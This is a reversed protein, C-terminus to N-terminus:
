NNTNTTVVNAKKAKYVVSTKTLKLNNSSLYHKNHKLMYLIHQKVVSQTYKIKNSHKVALVALTNAIQQLTQTKSQLITSNVYHTFCVKNKTVNVNNNSTVNTNTKNLM